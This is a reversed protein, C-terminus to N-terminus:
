APNPIPSKQAIKTSAYLPPTKEIAM